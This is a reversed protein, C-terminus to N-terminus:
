TLASLQGLKKAIVCTKEFGKLNIKKECHVLSLGLPHDFSYKKM